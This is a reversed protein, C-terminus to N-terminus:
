NCMQKIQAGMGPHKLWDTLMFDPREGERMPRFDASPPHGAFPIAFHSFDTLSFDSRNSIWGPTQHM